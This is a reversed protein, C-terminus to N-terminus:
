LETEAAWTADCYKVKEPFIKELLWKRVYLGMTAM